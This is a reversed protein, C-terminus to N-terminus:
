SEHAKEKAKIEKLEFYASCAVQLADGLSLSIKMKEQADDRVKMLVEYTAESANVTKTAM